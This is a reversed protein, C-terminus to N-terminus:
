RANQCAQVAATESIETRVIQWQWGGFNDNANEAPSRLQACYSRTCVPRREYMLKKMCDAIAQPSGGPVVAPPPTRPPLNQNQNQAQTSLLRQCRDAAESYIGVANLGGICQGLTQVPAQTQLLKECRDAAGSYIGRQNLEKICQGLTQQIQADAKPVLGITTTGILTFTLLTLTKTISGSM